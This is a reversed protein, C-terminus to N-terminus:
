LLVKLMIRPVIPHLTGSHFFPTGLDCRDLM